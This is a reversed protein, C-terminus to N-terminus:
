FFWPKPLVASAIGLGPGALGAVMGFATLLILVKCKLGIM